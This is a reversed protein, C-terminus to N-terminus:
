DSIEITVPCHDSGKVEMEIESSKVKAELNQSVIHYDLRWGINKERVGPRYSWWSYYGGSKQYERFTDIFDRKLFSDLWAREEPLFGANNINTKPNALDIEKHAINFDGCLIIGSKKSLSRSYENIAACFELKYGLRAHDRQSNPFYANVLYFQPFKLTMVRGESDFSRDGLGLKVDLPAMRTYVGLGSYGKKEASFFFSQYGFPSKLVPDLDRETAKIEQMCLVDLDSESFWKLLGNKACARIGNVNWSSIKM